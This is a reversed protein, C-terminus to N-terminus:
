VMTKPTGWRVRPVWIGGRARGRRRAGAVLYQLNIEFTPVPSRGRKGRFPPGGLPRAGRSATRARALGRWTALATESEANRTPPQPTQM